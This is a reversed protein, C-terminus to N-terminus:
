RFVYEILDHFLHNLKKLEEWEAKECIMIIENRLSRICKHCTRVWNRFDHEPTMLFISEKKRM